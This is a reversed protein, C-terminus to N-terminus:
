SIHYLLDWLINKGGLVEFICAHMDNIGGLHLSPGLTQTGFVSMRGASSLCGKHMCQERSTLEGTSLHLFSYSARHAALGLVTIM